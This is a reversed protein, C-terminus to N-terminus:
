NHCQLTTPVLAFQTTILIMVPVFTVPCLIHILQSLSNHNSRSCVTNHDYWLLFLCFTVPFVSQIRPQITTPILASQTTVFIMVPVFLIHNPVRTPESTSNCSSLSCVTSHDIDYCSCVFHVRFLSQNRPQFTNSQTTILIMVLVFIFSPCLIHIPQSITNHNSSSCIM